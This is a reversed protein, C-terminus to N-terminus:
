PYLAGKTLSLGSTRNKGAAGNDRQNNPHIPIKKVLTNVSQKIHKIDMKMEARDVDAKSTAKELLTVRKFVDIGLYGLISVLVATVGAAVTEVTSM